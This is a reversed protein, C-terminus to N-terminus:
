PFLRPTEQDESEKKAKREAKKKRSAKPKKGKPKRNNKSLKKAVKEEPQSKSEQDKMAQYYVSNKV